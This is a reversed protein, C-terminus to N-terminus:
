LTIINHLTHIIQFCNYTVGVDHPSSIRCIRAEFVVYTVGMDYPSLITCGIIQRVFNYTVGVDYPSLITLFCERFCVKSRSISFYVIYDIISGAEM